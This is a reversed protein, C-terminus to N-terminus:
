KVFYGQLCLRRIRTFVEKLVFTGLIKRSGAWSIPNKKKKKKIMMMM